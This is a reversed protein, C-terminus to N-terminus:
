EQELGHIGTVKPSAPEKSVRSAELLCERRERAEGGVRHGRYYKLRDFASEWEALRPNDTFCAAPAYCGDLWGCWYAMGYADKGRDTTTASVPLVESGCAPCRYVGDPLCRMEPHGCECAHSGLADPLGTIQRLTDLFAGSVIVQCSECRASNHGFSRLEYIECMPCRLTCYEAAISDTMKGGSGVMAETEIRKGPNNVVIRALAM